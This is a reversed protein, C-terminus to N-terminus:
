AAAMAAGPTKLKVHTHTPTHILARLKKKRFYYIFLVIVVLWDRSTAYILNFFFIRIVHAEKIIHNNYVDALNPDSRSYYRLRLTLKM